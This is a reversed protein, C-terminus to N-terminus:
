CRGVVRVNPVESASDIGAFVDAVVQDAVGSTRSRARSRLDAAQSEASALLDDVKAERDRIRGAASTARVRPLRSRASEVTREAEARAAALITVAEAKATRVVEQGEQEIVNLDATLGRLEDEVRAELDVPVAGQGAVPGPPAWGRRFRLLLDELLPMTAQAEM